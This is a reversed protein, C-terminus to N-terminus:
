ILIMSDGGDNKQADIITESENVTPAYIEAADSGAIRGHM